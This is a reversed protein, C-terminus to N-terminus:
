EIQKGIDKTLDNIRNGFSDIKGAKYDAEKQRRAAQEKECDHEEKTWQGPPGKAKFGVNCYECIEITECVHEIGQFISGGCERCNDILIRHELPEPGAEKVSTYQKCFAAFPYNNRQKWDDDYAFWGRLKRLVKDPGDAIIFSIHESENIRKIDRAYNVNPNKNTYEKFLNYYATVVWRPPSTNEVEEKKNLYNSSATKEEEEEKRRIDEEILARDQARFQAGNKDDFAPLEKNAPTKAELLFPKHQAREQAKKLFVIRDNGFIGDETTQKQTMEWNPISIKINKRPTTELCIYGQEHFHKCANRVIKYTIDKSGAKEALKAYSTLTQGPLINQKEGNFMCTKEQWNVMFYITCFIKWQKSNEFWLDTDM